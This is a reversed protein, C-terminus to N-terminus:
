ASSADPPERQFAQAGSNLARLRRILRDPVYSDPNRNLQEFQNEMWSTDIEFAQGSDEVRWGGKLDKIASLAASPDSRAREALVELRELEQIYEPMSYSKAAFAPHIAACLSSIVLFVQAIRATYMSSIPFWARSQM